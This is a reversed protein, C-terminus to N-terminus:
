TLRSERPRKDERMARLDAMIEDLSPDGLYLLKEETFDGPEPRYLRMFRLADDPGLAERLALFAADKLEQDNKFRSAMAM